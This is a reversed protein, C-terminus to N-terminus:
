AGKNMVEVGTRCLQTPQNPNKEDPRHGDPRGDDRVVESFSGGHRKWANM